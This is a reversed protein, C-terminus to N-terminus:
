VRTKSVMLRSTPFLQLMVRLVAKKKGLLRPHCVYQLCALSFLILQCFNIKLVVKSFCYCFYRGPLLSPPPFLSTPSTPGNVASRSAVANEKSQVQDVKHMESMCNCTCMGAAQFTRFCKSLHRNKMECLEHM